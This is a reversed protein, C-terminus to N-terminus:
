SQWCLKKFGRDKGSKGMCYLIPQQDTMCLKEIRSQFPNRKLPHEMSDLAKGASIMHRIHIVINLSKKEHHVIRQSLLEVQHHSIIKGVYSRKM